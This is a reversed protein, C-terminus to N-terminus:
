KESTARRAEAWAARYAQKFGTQWTQNDSGYFPADQGRMQALADMAHPTPLNMNHGAAYLGLERGLATGAAFAAANPPREPGRDTVAVAPTTTARPIVIAVIIITAAIISLLVAAGVIPNRTSAPSPTNM